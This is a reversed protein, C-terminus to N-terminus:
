KCVRGRALLCFYYVVEKHAIGVVAECLFSQYPMSDKRYYTSKWFYVSLLPEVCNRATKQSYIARDINVFLNNFVLHVEYQVVTM